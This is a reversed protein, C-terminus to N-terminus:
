PFRAVLEAMRERERVLKAAERAGRQQERFAREAELVKDIAYFKEPRQPLYRLGYRFIMGHLSQISKLGVIRAIEKRPLGKHLLQRVAELTEDSHVRSEGNMGVYRHNKKFKPLGYDARLKYVYDTKLGLERATEQCSMGAEICSLVGAVRAERMADQNRKGLVRARAAWIRKRVNDCVYCIHAHRVSRITKNVPFEEFSKHEGCQRCQRPKSWDEPEGRGVLPLLPPLSPVTM